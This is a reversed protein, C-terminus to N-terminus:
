SRGIMKGPDAVRTCLFAVALIIDMRARKCVYLLKAVIRHFLEARTKDLRKAGKTLEFLDRRAPTAANRLIVESFDDIAGKLFEKMSIEVAKDDTFDIKIGLFEHSKGRTVAM